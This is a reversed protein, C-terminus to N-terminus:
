LEDNPTELEVQTHSVLPVREHIRAKIQDILAELEDTTLGSKMHVDINALLQASGVYM